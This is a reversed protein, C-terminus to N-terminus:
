MIIIYDTASNVRKEKQQKTLPPRSVPKTNKAICTKECALDIGAQEFIAKRSALPSKVLVFELKRM